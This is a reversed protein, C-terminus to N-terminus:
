CLHLSFHSGGAIIVGWKCSQVWEPDTSCQVRSTVTSGLKSSLRSGLFSPVATRPSEPVAAACPTMLNVQELQPRTIVHSDTAALCFSRAPLPWCCSHWLSHQGHLCAM